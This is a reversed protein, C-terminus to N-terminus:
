AIGSDAYAIEHDAVTKSKVPDRRAICQAANFCVFLMSQIDSQLSVTPEVILDVRASLLLSFYTDVSNANVCYVENRGKSLRSSIRSSLTVVCATFQKWM